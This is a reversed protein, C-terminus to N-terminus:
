RIFNRVMRRNAPITASAKFVGRDKLIDEIFNHQLRDRVSHHTPTNEDGIGCVDFGISVPVLVGFFLHQLISFVIHVLQVFRHLIVPSVM